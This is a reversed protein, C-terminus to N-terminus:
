STSRSRWPGVSPYMVRSVFTASSAAADPHRGEGFLARMQAEFVEGSVGVRLWAARAGPAGILADTLLDSVDGM